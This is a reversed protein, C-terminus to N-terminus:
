CIWICARGLKTTSSTIPVFQQFFGAAKSSLFATVLHTFFTEKEGNATAIGNRGHLIQRNLASGACCNKLPQLIQIRKKKM